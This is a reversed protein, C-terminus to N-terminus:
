INSMDCGSMGVGEGWVGGGKESQIFIGECASVKSKQCLVAEFGSTTRRLEGLALEPLDSSHGVLSLSQMCDGLTAWCPAQVPIPRYLFILAKSIMGRNKPVPSKEQKLFFLFFTLLITCAPAITNGHIGQYVPM